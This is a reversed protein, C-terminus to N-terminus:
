GFSRISNWFNSRRVHTANQRQQVGHEAVMETLRTTYLNSNHNFAVEDRERTALDVAAGYVLVDQYEEPFVPEDGAADLYNAPHKVYDITATYSTQAEPWIYVTGGRQTWWQPEGQDTQWKAYDRFQQYPRFQFDVSTGDSRALEIADVRKCDAPLAITTDGAVVPDTGQTELFDWRRMGLVRRYTRQLAATIATTDSYGLTSVATILETQTM